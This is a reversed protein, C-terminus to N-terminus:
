LKNIELIPDPHRVAPNAFTSETILVDAEILNAPECTSDHQLKYDGTYLYRIGKYVMLVMASGMIHGAPYLTIAVENISFTTGYAHIDWARGANRGFRHVMFAATP